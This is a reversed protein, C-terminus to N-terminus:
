ITPISIVINGGTIPWIPTPFDVRGGTADWPITGYPSGYWLQVYDGVGDKQGSDLFVFLVLTDLALWGGDSTATVKGTVAMKGAYYVVSALINGENWPGIGAPLDLSYSHGSSDFYKFSISDGRFSDDIVRFSVQAEAGFANDYFTAKGTGKPPQPHKPPHPPAYVPFVITAALTTLVALYFVHRITMRMM